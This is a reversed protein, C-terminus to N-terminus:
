RSQVTFESCRPEATFAICLRWRGPAIADPIQLRDTRPGAFMLPEIETFSEVSIVRGEGTEGVLVMWEITGFEGEPDVPQLAYAYGRSEDAGLSVEVTGGAPVTSTISAFSAADRTLWRQEALFVTDATTPAEVDDSPSETCSTAMVCCLVAILLGLRRGSM